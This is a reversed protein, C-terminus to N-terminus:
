KDEVRTFAITNGAANFTVTTAKDGALAFTVTTIPQEAVGFTTQDRAVLTMPQGNLSAGLREGAVTVNLQVAAAPGTGRYTGVYRALEAATMKVEVLPKAGAKELIAM